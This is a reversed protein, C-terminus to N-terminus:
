GMQQDIGGQRIRGLGYGIIFLVDMVATALGFRHQVEDEVRELQNHTIPAHEM